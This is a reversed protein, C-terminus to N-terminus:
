HMPSHQHSGSRPSDNQGGEEDSISPERGKPSFAEVKSGSSGVPSRKLPNSSPTTPPSLRLSADTGSVDISIPSNHQENPLRRTGPQNVPLEVGLSPIISLAQSLINRASASHELYYGGSTENSLPGNWVSQVPETDSSDALQGRLWDVTAVFARAAASDSALVQQAVSMRTLLTVLVKLFLYARRPQQQRLREVVSPLSEAASSGGGAHLLHELRPAQLSDEITVLNVILSTYLACDSVGVSVMSQLAVSIAAASFQWNEWSLFQFLKTIEEVSCPLWSALRKPFQQQRLSVAGLFYIEYHFLYNLTKM